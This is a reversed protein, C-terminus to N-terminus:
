LIPSLKRIENSDGYLEEESGPKPKRVILSVCTERGQMLGVAARLDPRDGRSTGLVGDILRTLDVRFDPAAPNDSQQLPYYKSLLFGPNIQRGDPLSVASVTEFTVCLNRKTPDKKSEKVELSKVRMVHDGAPIVPRSTDVENPDFNDFGLPDNENIDSM